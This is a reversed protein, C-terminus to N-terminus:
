RWRTLITERQFLRVALYLLAADLVVVVALVILMIDRDILILGVSQGIVLLIIPLLVLASLQEAVRPDTARSSIIIAVCASLMTLLPAVLLIAILWHADLFRAFVDRSALFFAGVIFILFALWTALIAPIVAALLKGTLLEVTTIPTALLPELSRNAKEGVISYAAITVPIAVPLIMFMLVFLNLTYLVTCDSGSLGQCQEGFMAMVDPDTLDGMSAGLSNFVVLMVLPIAALALPLLLVSFLVMRNKFVESWEKGIITRVKDM